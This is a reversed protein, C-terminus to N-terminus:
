GKPCPLEARHLIRTSIPTTRGPRCGERRQSRPLKGEKNTLKMPVIACDSEELVYMDPNDDKRRGQGTQERLREPPRGTRTCM